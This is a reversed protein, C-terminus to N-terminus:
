AATAAGGAARGAPPADPRGPGDSRGPRRIQPRHALRVPDGREGLPTGALEDELEVVLDQQGLEHVGTKTHRTGPRPTARQGAVGGVVRGHGVPELQADDAPLEGVAVALEVDGLLLRLAELHRGRGLCAAVVLGVRGVLGEHPGELVSQRGGGADADADVPQDHQQGLDLGDPVHDEEGHEAGLGDSQAGAIPRDIPGPRATRRDSRTSRPRFGSGAGACVEGWSARSHGGGLLTGSSTGDRERTGARGPSRGRGAPRSTGRGGSTPAPRRSRRGPPADVHQGLRGAAVEGVVQGAPGLRGLLDQVRLERRQRAARGLHDDGGRRGNVSGALWARVSLSAAASAGSAWTDETVLGNLGCPAAWIECFPWM